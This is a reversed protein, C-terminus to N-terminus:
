LCRLVRVWGSLPVSCRPQAALSARAAMAVRPAGCLPPAGRRMGAGGRSSSTVGLRILSLVVSIDLDSVFAPELNVGGSLFWMIGRNRQRGSRAVPEKTVSKSVSRTRGRSPTTSM